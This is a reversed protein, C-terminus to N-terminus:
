LNCCNIKLFFFFPFWVISIWLYWVGILTGRKGGFWYKSNEDCNSRLKNCLAKSRASSYSDASICRIMAFQKNSFFAQILVTLSIRFLTYQSRIQLYIQLWVQTFHSDLFWSYRNLSWLNRRNILFIMM